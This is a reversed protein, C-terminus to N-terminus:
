SARHGQSYSHNKKAIVSPSTTANEPMNRGPKTRVNSENFAIGLGHKDFLLKQAPM